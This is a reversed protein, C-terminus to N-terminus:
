HISDFKPTQCRHRAERAAEKEKEQMEISMLQIQNLDQSKAYRKGFLVQDRFEKAFRVMIIPCGVTMVDFIFFQMDIIQSPFWSSHRFIAYYSQFTGQLIFGFVWFSSNFILSRAPMVDSQIVVLKRYIFFTSTLIILIACLIFSLHLMSLSLWEIKRHYITFFGGKWFVVEKESIITNFIVVLPLTLVTVMARPMNRKTIEDHATLLHVCLVRCLIMGPQSVTKFVRCYNYLPFIIHNLIPHNIFIPSFTSCLQPIYLAPRIIILDLIIYIMSVVCDATFIWYCLNYQYQERYRFRCVLVVRVLLAFTPILYFCSTIYKFNETLTHYNGSCNRGFNEFDPQNALM